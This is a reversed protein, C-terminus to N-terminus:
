FDFQLGLTIRAIWSVHDSDDEQGGFETLAGFAGGGAQVFLGGLLDLRLYAAGEFFFATEEDEDHELLFGGGGLEVALSLAPTFPYTVVLNLGLQRAEGDLDAPLQNFEEFKVDWQRYYARLGITYRPESMSMQFAAEVGPVMKEEAGLAPDLLLYVIGADLSSKPGPDKDGSQLLFVALLLTPM